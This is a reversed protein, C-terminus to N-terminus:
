ELQIAYLLGANNKQSLYHTLQNLPPQQIHRNILNIKVEYSLLQTKSERNGQGSGLRVEKREAKGRQESLKEQEAM